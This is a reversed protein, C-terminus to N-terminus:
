VNEEIWDAIENFSKGFADNLMIIKTPLANGDITLDISCDYGPEVEQLVGLACRHNDKRGYGLHGRIQVWQGGRLAAVWKRKLKHNM